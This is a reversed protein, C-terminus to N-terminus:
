VLRLVSFSWSDIELLQADGDGSPRRAQPQSQDPMEDSAARANREDSTSDPGNVLDCIFRTGVADDAIDPALLVDIRGRQL